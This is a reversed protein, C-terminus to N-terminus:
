RSVCPQGSPPIVTLRLRALRAHLIFVPTGWLIEPDVHIVETATDDLM